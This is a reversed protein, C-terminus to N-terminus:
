HKSCLPSTNSVQQIFIMRYNAQKNESLALMEGPYYIHILRSRQSSAMFNQQNPPGHKNGLGTSHSYIFYIALHVLPHMLWYKRGQLLILCPFPSGVWSKVPQNVPLPASYVLNVKQERLFRGPLFLRWVCFALVPLYRMSQRQLPPHLQKNLGM